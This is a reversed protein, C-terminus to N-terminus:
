EEEVEYNEVIEDVVGQDEEARAMEESRKSKTEMKEVKKREKM